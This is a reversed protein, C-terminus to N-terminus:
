ASTRWIGSFGATIHLHLDAVLLHFDSVGAPPQLRTSPVRPDLEPERRHHIQSFASKIGWLSGAQQTSYLSLFRNCYLFLLFHPLFLDPSSTTKLLFRLM